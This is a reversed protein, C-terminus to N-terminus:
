PREYEITVYAFINLDLDPRWRKKFPLVRQQVHRCMTDFNPLGPNWGKNKCLYSENMEPVRDVVWVRMGAHHGALLTVLERRPGSRAVWGQGKVFEYTPDTSTAM